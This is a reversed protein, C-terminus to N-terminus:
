DDCIHLCEGQFRERSEIFDMCGEHEDKLVLLFALAATSVTSKYHSHLGSVKACKM